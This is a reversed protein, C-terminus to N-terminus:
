RLPNGIGHYGTKWKRKRKIVYAIISSFGILISIIMITPLIDYNPVTKKPQIETQSNAIIEETHFQSQSDLSELKHSFNTSRYIEDGEHFDILYAFIYDGNEFIEYPDHPDFVSPSISTMKITDYPQPNKLYEHVAIEYTRYSGSESYSLVQGKVIVEDLDYIEQDSFFPIAYSPLLTVSIMISVLLRTKM